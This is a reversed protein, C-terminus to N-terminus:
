LDYRISAPTLTIKLIIGISPKDYTGGTIQDVFAEVKDGGDMAPALTEAEYRSIFGTQQGGVCVEIANRDHINGPDRVLEANQGEFCREVADAYRSVGVVRQRFTSVKAM